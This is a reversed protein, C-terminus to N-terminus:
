NKISNKGLLEKVLDTKKYFFKQSLREEDLLIKKFPLVMFEKDVTEISLHEKTQRIVDRLESLTNVIQGNVKKIIDSVGVVRADQTKSTPFIHSIILRPIYQNQRKTYKFLYPNDENFKEVHNLTLQMIVMGGIIEYDIKEYEPYFFRIPLPDVLDFKFSVRKHEGGRYVVLNVDQGLTFRNLLAIVPIKDESWSTNMEGYLDIKNNNIEYIMDGDEVGAKELLTSKHVRSVYFGGPLPNSLFKVMNKTGFNFECGFIPKRLFKISRLHEIINKVDNIPIIYGVGQAQSIRATNIGIVQGLNNLSPGGSNGPNLAATIQIYSEDHVIERGSVIGQTSKLKEQGLPYGLAMIEQARFIKDSDGLTLFPIRGLKKVVENFANKSMKLLALDRDPSVGVVDVRFQEKGFSPIQIKIGVAEDIVHYNTVIHGQDDIFFGSGYAKRQKPTKYPEEWNFSAANVFIQVVTDLAKKQVDRWVKSRELVVSGDYKKLTDDEGGPEIGLLRVNVCSFLFLCLFINSKIQIKM